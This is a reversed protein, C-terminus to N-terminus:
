KDKCIYPEGHKSKKKGFRADYSDKKMFECKKVSNLPWIKIRVNSLDDPKKKM